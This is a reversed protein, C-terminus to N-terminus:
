GDTVSKKVSKEVSNQKRKKRLAVRVACAQPLQRLRGIIVFIVNITATIDHRHRQGLGRPSLWYSSKGSRWSM